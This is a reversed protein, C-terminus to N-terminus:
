GHKESFAWEENPYEADFMTMYREDQYPEPYLHDIANPKFIDDGQFFGHNTVYQKSLSMFAITFKMDPELKIPRLYNQLYQLAKSIQDPSSVLVFLPIEGFEWHTEGCIKVWLKGDNKRLDYLSNDIDFMEPM